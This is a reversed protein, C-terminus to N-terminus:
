SSFGTSSTPRSWQRAVRHAVLRAGQANELSPADLAPLLLATHAVPAEPTQTSTCTCRSHASSRRGASCLFTVDVLVDVLVLPVGEDDELSSSAGTSGMEGRRHRM